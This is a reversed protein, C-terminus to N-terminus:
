ARGLAVGDEQDRCHPSDRSSVPGASTRTTCNVLTLLDLQSASAAPLQSLKCADAGRSETGESAAQRLEGAHQGDAQRDKLPRRRATRGKTDSLLAGQAQRQTQARNPPAGPFPVGGEM